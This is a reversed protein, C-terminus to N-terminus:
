RIRSTPPPCASCRPSTTRAAGSPRSGVQDGDGNGDGDRLRIHVRDVDLAAGVVEVARQVVHDLDLSAHVVESLERRVRQDKTREIEVVRLRALERVM